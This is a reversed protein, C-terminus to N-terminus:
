LVALLGVISRAFPLFLRGPKNEMLDLAKEITLFGPREMEILDCEIEGGYETCLFVQSDCYQAPMGTISTLPILDKPTIGFEEQTERIAAEEPTEGAEIHGGPGGITGDDVRTGCLIKGNQIVLVGVGQQKIDTDDNHQEAFANFTKAIEDSNVVGSENAASDGRTDCFVLSSRDLAILYEEGGSEKVRIANYGSYLAFTGTDGIPTSSKQSLLTEYDAIRADASFCAEMVRGKDGGSYGEATRRSTSFYIGDSHVGNGLFTLEGSVTMDVIEDASVGASLNDVVGRFVPGTPSQAAIKDFEDRSVVKPKDNLGLAQAMHQTHSGRNLSRDIEQSYCKSAFEKAEDPTMNMFEQQSESCAEFRKQIEMRRTEIIKKANEVAVGADVYNKVEIFPVGCATMLYSAASMEDSIAMKEVVSYERQYKTGPNQKPTDPSLERKKHPKGRM